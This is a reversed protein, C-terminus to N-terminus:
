LAQMLHQRFYFPHHVERGLDRRRCLLLLRHHLVDAAVDVGDGLVGVGVAVLHLVHVSRAVDQEGLSALEYGQPSRRTLATLSMCHLFAM